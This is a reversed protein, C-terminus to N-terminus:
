RSITYKSIFYGSKMDSPNKSFSYLMNKDKDFYMRDGPQGPITKEGMYKGELSYMQLTFNSNIGQTFPGEFIVLFYEHTAYVKMIYSMGQRVKDMMQFDRKHLAELLKESSPEVYSRPKQGFFTLARSKINLKIIKYSASWAFYVDDGQVDFWSDLGKVKIDPKDRYQAKYEEDSALGYKDYSHLLFTIHGDSLNVEYLDYPVGNEDPMYGAIMVRDGMLQIDTALRLCPIERTKVFEGRGIRDYILIQKKGFDLVGLRGAQKNYSCFTPELFDFGKRGIVKFLELRSGNIEAIEIKGEGQNPIILLEDETLCFGQTILPTSGNEPSFGIKGALRVEVGFVSCTGVVSFLAALFLAKWKTKSRM